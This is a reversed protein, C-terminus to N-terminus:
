IVRLSSYSVRSRETRYSIDGDMRRSLAWADMLFHLHSWQLLWLNRIAGPFHHRCSVITSTCMHVVACFRCPNLGSLCPGLLSLPFPDCPGVGVWSAVSLLVVTCSHFIYPSLTFHTEGWLRVPYWVCDPAPRFRSPISPWCLGYEAANKHCKTENQRPPVKKDQPRKSATQNENTHKQQTM